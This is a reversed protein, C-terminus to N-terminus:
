EILKQDRYFKESVTAFDDIYSAFADPELFLPQMDNQAMWSSFETDEVLVKIGDVMQATVDDPTDKPGVLGRFQRGVIDFGAERVTPVESHNAMRSETFSALLKIEGAELQASLEQMEGSGLAVTGNIVNIITDGGGDHPVIIANVGAMTKLQELMMREFSSAPGTGWREKSIRAVELIEGLTNAPNSAATYVVNTDVSICAIPALERFTVSPAAMLSTNIYTPNNGYVISGDKPGSAVRSMAAAGGGGRVNEVVFTVNMIRGLDLAVRRLFIDASGGPSGHTVITVTKAPYASATTVMGALAPAALFCAGTKMFDRRVLSRVGTERSGIVKM